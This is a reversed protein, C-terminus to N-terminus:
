LICACNPASVCSGPLLYTDLHPIVDIAGQFNPDRFLFGSVWCLVIMDPYTRAALHVQIPYIASARAKRWM